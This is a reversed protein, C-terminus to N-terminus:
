IKNRRKLNAIRGIDNNKMKHLQKHYSSIEDTLINKYKKM